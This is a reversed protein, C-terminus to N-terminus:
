FYFCCRLGLSTEVSCPRDEITAIAIDRAYAGESLGGSSRVVKGNNHLSIAHRLTVM